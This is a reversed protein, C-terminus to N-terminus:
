EELIPIDSHLHWFVCIKYEEFRDARDVGWCNAKHHEFHELRLRELVKKAKEKSGIVIAETHDNACVIHVKKPAVFLNSSAKWCEFDLALDRLYRSLTLASSLDLCLFEASDGKISVRVSSKKGGDELDETLVSIEM